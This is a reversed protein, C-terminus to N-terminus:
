TDGGRSEAKAIAREARVYADNIIKWNAARKNQIFEAAVEDAAKFMDKLAALLDPAAAILCANAEEVMGPAVSYLYVGVPAGSSVIVVYNKATITRKHVIPRTTWPGPTHKTEM